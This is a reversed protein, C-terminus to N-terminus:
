SFINTAILDRVFFAASGTAAIKTTAIMLRSNGLPMDAAIAVAPAIIEPIAVTSTRSCKAFPRRQQSGDLCPSGASMTEPTARALGPVDPTNYRQRLMVVLYKIAVVRAFRVQFFRRDDRHQDVVYKESLKEVSQRVRRARDYERRCTQVM